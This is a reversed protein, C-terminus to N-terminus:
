STQLGENVFMKSRFSNITHILFILFQSKLLFKILIMM